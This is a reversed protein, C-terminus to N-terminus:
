LGAERLRELLRESYVMEPAWAPSAKRCSNCMSNVPLRFRNKYASLVRQHELCREAQSYHPCSIV